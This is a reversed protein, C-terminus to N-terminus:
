DLRGGGRLRAALYNLGGRRPIFRRGRILVYALNGDNMEGYATTRSSGTWRCYEAISFTGESVLEFLGADEAPQAKV